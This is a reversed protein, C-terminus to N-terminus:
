LLPIKIIDIYRPTATSSARITGFVQLVRSIAGAFLESGVKWKRYTLVPGAGGPKAEPYLGVYTVQVYSDFAGVEFRFSDEGSMFHSSDILIDPSEGADDSIVPNTLAATNEYRWWAAGGVPSEDYSGPIDTRPLFPVPLNISPEEVAVGSRAIRRIQGPMNVDEPSTGVIRHGPM